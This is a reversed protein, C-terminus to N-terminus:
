VNGAGLVRLVRHRAFDTLGVRHIKLGWRVTAVKRLEKVVESLMWESDACRDFSNGSVFAGVVRLTESELSADRDLIRLQARVPDVIEYSVSVGVLTCVGDSTTLSQARIDFVQEVAQDVDIRGVLPVCFHMGSYLPKPRKGCLTRVACENPMVIQWFKFVRISGLLKSILENM